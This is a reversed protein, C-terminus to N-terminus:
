PVFNFFLYTAFLVLHLVGPQVTTNGTRLTLAVVFLTTTLLVIEAGGLGLELPWGMIVALIAVVPITLGISAIASGIALNLSSQLRNARASRMAAAFEPMLVIAAIFIGLVAAPAGWRGLLAELTPSIGKASLVVAVLSVLLLGLAILAERKTPHPVSADEKADDVRVPIFYERHLVTQFFTFAAFLVLTAIAVFILQSTAYTPGASSEVFNPLVMALVTITAMTALADTMGEVNFQLVGHKRGGALLAVGIMANLIIMIAAFITDRALTMANDGGSLMMSVILAVEIATVSLALVLTGFPEGVKHAIVEAHHVASVVAGLLGLALLAVLIGNTPMVWTAAIVLWSALPVVVSWRPLYASHASMFFGFSGLIGGTLRAENCSARSGADALNPRPVAANFKRAAKSHRDLTAELAAASAQRAPDVAGAM